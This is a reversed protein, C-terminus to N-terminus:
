STTKPFDFADDIIELRKYLFKKKKENTIISKIVFNLKMIFSM